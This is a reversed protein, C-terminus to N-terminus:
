RVGELLELLKINQFERSAAWSAAWSVEWSVEGRSAGRSAAWSAERLVEDGTELYKKVVDPADWLHIVQLACWRSFELLVTDADIVSLYERGEAVMKDEGYIIQGHMRCYSVISGPAYQLADLPKISAHLGYVCLEIPLSKDLRWSTAGVEILRNDGYGLKRDNAAFHWGYTDM